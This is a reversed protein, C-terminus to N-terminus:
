EKLNQTGVENIIEGFKSYDGEELYIEYETLVKELVKAFFVPFLKGYLRVTEEGVTVSVKYFKSGEKFYDEIDSTILMEEIVSVVGPVFKDLKIDITKEKNNVRMRQLVRRKISLVEEEVKLEKEEVVEEDQKSEYKIDETQEIERLQRYLEESDRLGDLVRQFILNISKKGTEKNEELYKGGYSMLRQSSHCEELTKYNNKSIEEIIVECMFERIDEYFKERPDEYLPLEEPSVGSELLKEIEEGKKDMLLVPAELEDVKGDYWSYGVNAGVYLPPIGLHELDMEMCERILKVIYWMNYKKPVQFCLEDHVNLVIRIDYGLEDQFKHHCRVIAQKMIDAATGQVYTNSARRMISAREYEALVDSGNKLESFHRKRKFLTEVYGKKLVELEVKKMNDRISPVGDFYAERQKAAMRRSVPDDNGYLTIALNADQLGYSIAFNLIKGQKREKSTVEHYEKNMMNAYALIHYDAEPNSKFFDVVKKEKNLGASLRYEVQSYDCILFYYDDSDPKMAKRLDRETQQLNPGSSSFRGSETGLQHYSPFIYGNIAVTPMKTYFLNLKQSLMSYEQLLSVIPYRKKGNDELSDYYKIADKGTSYGTKTKFRDLKPVGMEEYLIKAKEQSSAINFRRGALEYIEKEVKDLKDLTTERLEEVIDMDLRIGYYEQTATPRICELELAYIFDLDSDWEELMMRLILRPLDGDAGCYLRAYEYSMYRFDLIDSKKDTASLKYFIDSLNITDIGLMNSAMGKLTRLGKASEIDMLGQMIFTDHTIELDWGHMKMVKWDFSANHLVTQKKKPSNRDFYPRILELFEEVSMEINGFKKHKFPFYVGTNDEYSMCIGVLKDTHFRNIKLGTTETDFGVINETADLGEVYELIEDRKTIVRYDKQLIWSFNYPMGETDQKNEYQRYEKIFKSGKKKLLYNERIAEVPLCELLSEKYSETMKHTNMEHKTYSISKVKGVNYPVESRSVEKFEVGKFKIVGEEIEEGKDETLYDSIIDNKGYVEVTYNYEGEGVIKKRSYVSGVVENDKEIVVVEGVKSFIVYYVLGKEDVGKYMGKSKNDIDLNRLKYM